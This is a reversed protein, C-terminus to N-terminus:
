FGTVQLGTRFIASHGPEVTVLGIGNNFANPAGTLNEIAISNRHPPTYVQLVPYSKEPFFAIRVRKEPDTLTCVPQAAEFNVLFSNDLSVGKMSKGGNFETFPLTKGTPILKEDFEVIATSSFQLELRDVPTGTSFYPHWGDMMPIPANHLNFVATTIQLQQDALLRYQVECRYPFPYGPDDGAYHHELSIEAFSDAAEEKILSFPQDYLLGHIPSKRITYDKGEWSYAADKIRCAFPSLKVSKFSNTVGANLDDSSSYSDIVNINTGGQPIIFAHLLAGYGPIIQVEAGADDQLAIISFGNEEKHTISFAM